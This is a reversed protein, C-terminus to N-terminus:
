AKLVDHDVYRSGNLESIISYFLIIGFLPRILRSIM